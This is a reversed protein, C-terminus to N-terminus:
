IFVPVSLYRVYQYVIVDWISHFLASDLESFFKFLVTMNYIYSHYIHKNDLALYFKFFSCSNLLLLTM